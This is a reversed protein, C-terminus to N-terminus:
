FVTPLPAGFRLPLSLVLGIPVLVFKVIQGLRQM